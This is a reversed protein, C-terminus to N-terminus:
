EPIGPPSQLYTIAAEVLNVSDQMIGIGVNCYHCLLGRLQGTNHDHDVNLRNGRGGPKDTKCIACLGLQRIYVNEYNELSISYLKMLHRHRQARKGEESSNYERMSERRLKSYKRQSEKRTASSNYERMSENYCLKCISRFKGNLKSFKDLQKEIECKNCTKM